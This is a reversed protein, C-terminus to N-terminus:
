KMYKMKSLFVYLDLYDAITVSSKIRMYFPHKYLSFFDALSIGLSIFVTLFKVRM